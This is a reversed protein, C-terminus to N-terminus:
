IKWAEEEEQRQVDEALSEDVRGTWPKMGIVWASRALAHTATPNLFLVLVVILLLKFVVTFDFEDAGLAAILLGIFVLGQGLTDGKGAAHLRTYFDPFRLVGLAGVLMVLAGVAIVIVAVVDFVSM